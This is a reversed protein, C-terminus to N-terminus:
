YQTLRVKDIAAALGAVDGFEVLTVGEAAQLGCHKTAIVPVGAALAKLLVAPRDEVLAPQVVAAAGDLWNDTHRMMVHNVVEWFAEGELEAGLSVVELNCM